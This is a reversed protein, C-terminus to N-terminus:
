VQNRIMVAFDAATQDTSVSSLTAPMNSKVEISRGALNALKLSDAVQDVAGDNVGLQKPANRVM